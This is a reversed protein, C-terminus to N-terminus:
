HGIPPEAAGLTLRRSTYDPSTHVHPRQHRHCSADFFDPFSAGGYAAMAGTWGLMPGRFDREMLAGIQWSVTASGTGTAISLIAHM